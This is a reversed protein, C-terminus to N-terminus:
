GDSIAESAAVGGEEADLAEPSTPATPTGYPSLGVSIARCCCCTGSPVRFACPSLSSGCLVRSGSM